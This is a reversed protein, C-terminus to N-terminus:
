LLDKVQEYGTIEGRVRLTHNLNEGWDIFRVEWWCFLFALKRSFEQSEM